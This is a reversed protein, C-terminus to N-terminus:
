KTGPIIELLENIDIIQNDVELSRSNKLISEAVSKMAPYSARIMHNAYIVINFGAKMLEEEAISNYTTPISVLPILKNNKRFRKAFEIVESPDKKRSHIMIADSGAEVYRQARNIADDMGKELILSEIRAIVMFDESVCAKKGVSIKECFLNVDEQVQFVDNGLLSNKKLGTKDEIVVASIGLREMNKINVKLHEPKGGTDWDMILPKTTIDFINNIVSLRSSIDLLEIDPKGSITSDALSSSWFGDYHRNINNEDVISLKEIILSSLPSHSEMFRLLQKSALLRKLKGRRIEPSSNIINMENAIKGASVDRTYPIEILKGGYENLISIARERYSYLSGEKWDDGHIMFDPKYKKLNNSYDWEYQPVVFKVGSINEIIKKRNEFSLFPLRKFNAIASDTLLGIIIDGYKRAETIINIHGHHIIDVTMGIYVLAM